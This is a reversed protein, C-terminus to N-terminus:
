IRPMCLKLLHVLNIFHKYYIDSKFRGRLVIPAIYLTWVMACEATFERRHDQLDPIRCGFSAPVTDGARVSAACVEDAVAEELVFEEGELPLNKFTGFWLSILNPILNSWILHMLEYPYSSPFRLSSLASHVPLGKIRSKKAREEVTTLNHSFQVSCAEDIFNDHTHIPLDSPEYYLPTSPENCNMRNLPVYYNKFPGCVGVIKCMRCPLRANHGKMRMLLSMAPIDGFVVILYAHLIFLTESLADYAKVGLELQLLEEMLPWIFSGFDQPKKPGPITGLPIINEQHFRVNPPLNYDFGVVPWCTKTCHKHPAFGDTSVGLAIDQPDSFHNFPMEEGGVTVCTTLLEKYLRGDFIDSIKKTNLQHKAQYRMVSALRPNAVMSCLRPILPLYEFYKQPKGDQLRATGCQPCNELNEYQATYCICSNPCCNYCVPQFGSLFQVRSCTVKWSPICQDPFISLLASFARETLGM